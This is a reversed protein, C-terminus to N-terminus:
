MDYLKLPDNNSLKSLTQEKPLLFDCHGEFIRPITLGEIVDPSQLHHPM